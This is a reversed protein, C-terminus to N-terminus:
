VWPGGTSSWGPASAITVDMGFSDALSVAYRFADKWGDSLYPLKVKAARPMDIGGADFQHVGGIGSRRMWELDKRIGEQSVNGDM